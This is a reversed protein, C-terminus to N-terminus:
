KKEFGVPNNMIPMQKDTLGLLKSIGAADMTARPVTALGVSQCYLIRHEKVLEIAEKGSLHEIDLRVVIMHDFSKDVEAQFGDVGPSYKEALLRLAAMKEEASDVIAAKGFAIVSRFYTTFEEPKVDDTEIVCFSVKSNRLIADVKHGCKASHFFISGSQYVFSMPVAYPYGDDGNVALVGSTAKRLIAESTERSLEQRKRRMGRM